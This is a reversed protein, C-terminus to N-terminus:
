SIFLKSEFLGMLTTWLNRSNNMPHPLSMSMWIMHNDTFHYDYLYRFSEANM